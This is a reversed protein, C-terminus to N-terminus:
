LVILNTEQDLYIIANTHCPYLVTKIVKSAVNTMNYLPTPHLPVVSVGGGKKHM